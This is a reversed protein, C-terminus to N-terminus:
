LAPASLRPKVLVFGLAVMSDVIIRTRQRPINIRKSLQDLTAPGDSLKQFVGIESAVFLQKSAMFGCAVRIIEDPTLDAM